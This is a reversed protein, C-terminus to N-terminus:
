IYINDPISMYCVSAAIRAAVPTPEISYESVELTWDMTPVSSVFALTGSFQPQSSWDAHRHRCWTTSICSGPMRFTTGTDERSPALRRWAPSLHYLFKWSNGKLLAFKLSWIAFRPPWCLVIIAGMDPSTSELVLSPTSSLGLTPCPSNLKPHTGKSTSSDPPDNNLTWSSWMTM